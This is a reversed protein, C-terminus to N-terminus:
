RRLAVLSVVLWYTLPLAFATLWLILNPFKEVSDFAIYCIASLSLWQKQHNVRALFRKTAIKM